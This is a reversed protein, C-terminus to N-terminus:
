YKGIFKYNAMYGSVNQRYGVGRRLYGYHAENLCM